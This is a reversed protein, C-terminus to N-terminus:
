PSTKYNDYGQFDKFTDKYLLLLFVHTRNELLEPSFFFTLCPINRDGRKKIDSVIGLKLILNCM